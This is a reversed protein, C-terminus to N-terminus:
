RWHGHRYGNYNDNYDDRGHHGHHPRSYTMRPSYYAPPGYVVRPAYYVPPAAYVERPAYYAPPASYYTPEPYYAPAPAYLVPAPFPLGISFDVSVGGAHASSLGGAVGIALGALTTVLYKRM